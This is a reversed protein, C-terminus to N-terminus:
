SRKSTSGDLRPLARRKSGSGKSKFSLKSGSGNTNHFVNSYKSNSGSM